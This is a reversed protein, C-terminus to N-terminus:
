VHKVIWEKHMVWPGRLAYLSKRLAYLPLGTSSRSTLCLLVAVRWFHGVEVVDHKVFKFPLVMTDSHMRGVHTVDHCQNSTVLPLDVHHPYCLFVSGSSVSLCLIFCHLLASVFSSHPLMIILGLAIYNPKVVAKYLCLNSVFPNVVVAILDSGNLTLFLGYLNFFWCFAFVHLDWWDIYWAWLSQHQQYFHGPMVIDVDSPVLLPQALCIRICQSSHLVCLPCVTYRQLLFM